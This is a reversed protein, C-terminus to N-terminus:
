CARRQCVLGEASQMSACRACSPRLSRQFCNQTTSGATLTSRLCLPNGGMLSVSCSSSASIFSSRGLFLLLRLASVSLSASSASTSPSASSSLSSSQHHRSLQRPASINIASHQPPTPTIVTASNHLQPPTARAKHSSHSIDDVQRRQYTKLIDYTRRYRHYMNLVNMSEIQQEYSTRGQYTPLVSTIGQSYMNCVNPIHTLSTSCCPTKSCDQRLLCLSGVCDPVTKPTHPTHQIYTTPIHYVHTQCSSPVDGAHRLYRGVIRRLYTYVVIYICSVYM